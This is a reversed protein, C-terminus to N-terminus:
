LEQFKKKITFILFNNHTTKKLILHLLQHINDIGNIGVPDAGDLKVGILLRQLQVADLNHMLQLKKTNKSNNLNSFNTIGDTNGKVLEVDTIFDDKTAAFSGHRTDFQRSYNEVMTLHVM